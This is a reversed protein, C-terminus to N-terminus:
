PCKKGVACYAQKNKQEDHKDKQGVFQPFFFLKHEFMKGFFVGRIFFPYFRKYRKNKLRCALKTESIWLLSNQYNSRYHCYDLLFHEVWDAIGLWVM